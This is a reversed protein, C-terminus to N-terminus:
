PVTLIGFHYIFCITIPCSKDHNIWIFPSNPKVVAAPFHTLSVLSTYIPSIHQGSALTSSPAMRYKPNTLVIIRYAVSSALAKCCINQIPRIQFGYLIRFCTDAPKQVSTGLEHPQGWNEMKQQTKGSKELIFCGNMPTHGQFGENAVLTEIGLAGKRAM